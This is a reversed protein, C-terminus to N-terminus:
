HAIRLKVIYFYICVCAHSLRQYLCIVVPLILWTELNCCYGHVAMHVRLWLRHLSYVNPFMRRASRVYTLMSVFLAAYVHLNLFCFEFKRSGHMIYTFRMNRINSSTPEVILAHGCVHLHILVFSNTSSVYMDSMIICERTMGIWVFPAVHTAKDNCRKILKFYVVACTDYPQDQFMLRQEYRAAPRFAIRIWTVGPCSMSSCM